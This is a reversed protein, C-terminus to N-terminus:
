ADPARGRTVIDQLWTHVVQTVADADAFSQTGEIGANVNSTHRITARLQSSPHPEIWARIILVATRENPM